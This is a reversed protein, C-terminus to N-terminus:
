LLRAVSPFLSPVHTSTCPTLIITLVSPLVYLVQPIITLYALYAFIEAFDSDDTRPSTFSNALPKYLLLLSM